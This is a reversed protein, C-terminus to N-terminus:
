SPDEIAKFCWLRWASSYCVRMYMRKAGESAVVLDDVKVLGSSDDFATSLM